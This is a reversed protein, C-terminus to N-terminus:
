LHPQLDLDPCQGHTFPHISEVYIIKEASSYQLKIESKQQLSHGNRTAM